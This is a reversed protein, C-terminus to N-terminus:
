HLFHSLLDLLTGMAVDAVIAGLKSATAAIGLVQGFQDSRYWNFVLQLTFRSNLSAPLLDWLYLDFAHNIVHLLPLYFIFGASLRFLVHLHKFVSRNKHCTFCRAWQLGLLLQLTGFVFGCPLSCRYSDLFHFFSSAFLPFLLPCLCWLADVLDISTTLFSVTDERMWWCWSVILYQLGPFGGLACVITLWLFFYACYLRM